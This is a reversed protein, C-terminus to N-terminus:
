PAGVQSALDAGSRAASLWDGLSPASRELKEYWHLVGRPHLDRHRCWALSITGLTVILSQGLYLAEDLCDDEPAAQFRRAAQAIPSPYHERVSLLVNDNATEDVM